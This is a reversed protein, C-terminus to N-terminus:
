AVVGLAKLIMLVAFVPLVVEFAILLVRTPLHIALRPGFRAGALIGLAAFSPWGAGAKPM